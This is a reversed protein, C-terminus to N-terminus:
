KLKPQKIARVVLGILSLAGYVVPKYQEPIVGDLWTTSFDITALGTLSSMAWVSWSKSYDKFKFFQM